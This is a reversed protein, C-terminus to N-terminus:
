VADTFVIGGMGDSKMLMEGMEVGSVKMRDRYFSAVYDALDNRQIHYGIEDVITSWISAKHETGDADTYAPKRIIFGKENDFTFWRSLTGRTEELEQTVVKLSKGGFINSTTLLDVFAQRAFLEHVDIRAADITNILAYTALLDGTNLRDATINTELIVQGAETQGVTIEGDTISVQTATINGNEDVDLRYYNGDAAKIILDGISASVIQAYQVALNKIFVEGAVGFELNMAQAVLHQITARDFEASGAILVQIRAMQAALVDATINEADLTALYAVLAEISASKVMDATISDAVLEGIRASIATIANATLQEVAANAIHAYQISAERYAASDITHNAIKTGSIGRNPLNYSYVTQRVEQLEGLTVKEYQLTLANWTYGTVRIKAKLGILEDIVTVTDYLYVSQLAAFDEPEQLLVFDVDMGYTPLDIGNESYDEEALARLKTRAASTSTFTTENDADKEVIKVDYEIRQAFIMPYDDIHPSDVYRTGSLYLPKGDKTKGEPIIRTVVDSMDTTVTVGVLNKGRRVTVGSDRVEDPLLYVEYNDRVVLAGTQAAIGEDPDLLAEVPSKFGYDATIKGELNLTRITFENENLLKANIDNIVTSAKAKKPEYEGNIINGRLDYFIHRATATVTGAETDIEVATIRFLQERSQTFEVSRNGIIQGGQVTETITDVVRLYKTSMWCNRGGKQVIVHVWLRSGVMQRGIENVRAGNRLYGYNRHQKGPGARMYLGHSTNYVEWVNRTVKKLDQDYVDELYEYLPSERVPVPARLICGATIQAWRLTSDIPHVLKLEYMGAAQEEITCELPTLIGLGNTSFDECKPPYITIAM